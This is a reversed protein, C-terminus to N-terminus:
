ATITQLSIRAYVNSKSDTIIVQSSILESEEKEINGEKEVEEIMINFQKRKGYKM